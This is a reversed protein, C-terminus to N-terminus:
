KPKMLMYSNIQPIVTMCQEIWLYSTNRMNEAWKKDDRQLFKYHEIFLDQKYRTPNNRSMTHWGM